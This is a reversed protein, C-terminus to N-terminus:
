NNVLSLLLALPEDVFGRGAKEREARGFDDRAGLQVAPM